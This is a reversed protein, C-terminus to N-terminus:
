QEQQSMSQMLAVRREHQTAFDSNYVKFRADPDTSSRIRALNEVAANLVATNLMDATHMDAGQTPEKILLALDNVVEGIRRRIDPDANHAALVSLVKEEARLTAERRDQIQMIMFQDAGEVTGDSWIIVKVAAQVVVPPTVPTANPISAPLSETYVEAPRIAGVWSDESAAQSRANLVLDLFDASFDLHSLVKGDATVTIDMGYATVAKQSDNVLEVAVTNTTSVYEASRVQLPLANAETATQGPLGPSNLAALMIGAFAFHNRFRRVLLPTM